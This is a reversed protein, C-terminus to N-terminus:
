KGVSIQYALNKGDAQAGYRVTVRAGPTLVGNIRTEENWVLTMEDSGTKVVLTQHEADLRSITGSVTQSRDAAFTAGAALATLALAIGLARVTKQM